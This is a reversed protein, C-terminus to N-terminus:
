RSIVIPETSRVIMRPRSSRTRSCVEWFSRQTAIVAASGLASSTVVGYPSASTRGPSAAAPRPSGRYSTLRLVSTFIRDGSNSASAAPSRLAGDASAFNLMESATSGVGSHAFCGARTVIRVPVASGCFCPMRSNATPGHLSLYPTAENSIRSM